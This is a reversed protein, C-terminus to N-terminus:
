RSAPVLSGQNSAPDYFIELQIHDPDRFVLVRAGAISNAAVEPTHPVGAEELRAQWQRLEDASSVGFALHDLGVRTEDFGESTGDRHQTLGLRLDFDPHRLFIKRREGGTFCRGSRRTVSL